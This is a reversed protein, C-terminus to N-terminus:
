VVEHMREVAQVAACFSARVLLRRMMAPSRGKLQPANNGGGYQNAFADSVEFNALTAGTTDIKQAALFQMIKQVSAELKAHAVTLDNDAAVVRLPWIALDATVEREAVGKVTVYRDASRGREFGIGVFLGAIAIGLAAIIAATTSQQIRM